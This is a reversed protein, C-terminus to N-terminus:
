EVGGVGGVGGVVGGSKLRELHEIIEANEIKNRKYMTLYAKADVWDEDCDDWPLGLVGPLEDPFEDDAAFFRPEWVAHFQDKKCGDVGKKRFGDFKDIVFAENPDEWLNSQPLWEEFLADREVRKLRIAKWREVKALYLEKDEAHEVVKSSIFPLRWANYENMPRKQKAEVRTVEQMVELAMTGGLKRLIKRVASHPVCELPTKKLKDYESLPPKEVEDVDVPRDANLGDNVPEVPEVCYERDVGLRVMKKTRRTTQDVYWKNLAYELGETKLRRRWEDRDLTLAKLTLWGADSSIEEKTTFGFDVLDNLVCDNWTTRPRGVPRHKVVDLEGFFLQKALRTDDMRMLHGFYSLRDLKVWIHIPYMDVGVLRCLKILFDYSPHHYWKLGFIRMLLSRATSNLKMLLADKCTWAADNFTGSNVVYMRFLQLKSVIGLHRNTFINDRFTYFNYKLKGVRIQIEKDMSGDASTTTGIYRFNQAFGIAETGIKVVTAKRAAIEAVHFANREAQVHAPVLSKLNLKYPPREVVMFETKKINVKQGFMAMVENVTEAIQNMEVEDAFGCFVSDDAFLIDNVITQFGNRSNRTDNPGARKFPNCNLNYKIKVGIKLVQLRKRIEEMIAGMFINFLVCSLAAGQKLGTTLDFTEEGIVGNDKVVAKAGVLMSKILIILGPAVGRRELILWMVDRVVFDYAKSNDVFLKFGALDKEMILGDVMNSIFVAEFGSRFKRFAQQSEGFWGYVEAAANLRGLIMREQIKGICSLLSLTRYNNPETIDGKKFLFVIIADIMGAATTGNTLNDNIMAVVLDEMTESPILKFFEVYIDDNGNSKGSMMPALADTYEFGNFLFGTYDHVPEQPPLANLLEPHVERVNNLLQKSHAVKVEMREADTKTLTGDPKKLETSVSKVFAAGTHHNIAAYFGKSHHEHSLELLDTLKGDVFAHYFRRITAQLESKLRVWELRDVETGSKTWARRAEGRKKQLAQLEEENAEYYTNPPRTEKVPPSRPLIAFSASFFEPCSVFKFSDLPPPSGIM